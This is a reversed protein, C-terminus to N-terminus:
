ARGTERDTALHIRRVLGFPQLPAKLDPETTQFNLNGVFISKM